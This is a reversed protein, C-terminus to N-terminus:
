ANRIYELYKHDTYMTFPHTTGELWHKWEELALLERNGIDYNIGQQPFLKKKGESFLLCMTPTQSLGWAAWVAGSWRWQYLCWGGGCLTMLSGSSRPATTFTEKLKEFAQTAAPTWSLSKPKGKLLSTLCHVISSFDKLFRRYFNTFGLFWQLEKFTPIPREHVAKVKGEDMQIGQESIIYGLFPVSFQHFSCKEAKLFLNFNRLHQLVEAVHQRHETKGSTM